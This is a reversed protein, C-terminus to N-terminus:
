ALHPRALSLACSRPSHFWRRREASGHPSARSYLPASAWGNRWPRCLTATVAVPPGQRTQLMAKLVKILGNVAPALALVLISQALCGLLMGIM